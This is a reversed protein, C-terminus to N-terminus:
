PLMVGLLVAFILYFLASASAAVGLLVMLRREGLAFLLTGLYLATAILFGLWPLLLCYCVSVGLTVLAVNNKRLWYISKDGQADDITSEEINSNQGTLEETNTTDEGRPAATNHTNELTQILEDFPETEEAQPPPAFPIQSRLLLTAALAALMAAALGPFLFPSQWFSYYRNNQHSVVCYFFAPLAVAGLVLGERTSKEKLWDIIRERNM